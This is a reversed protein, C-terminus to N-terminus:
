YCHCSKFESFYSYVAISCTFILMLSSCREQATVLIYILISNHFFLVANKSLEIWHVDTQQDCCGRTKPLADAPRRDTRRAGECHRAEISKSTYHKADSASVRSVGGTCEIHFACVVFVILSSTKTRQRIAFYLVYAPLSLAAWVPLLSCKDNDDWSLSNVRSSVNGLFNHLWLSLLTCNLLEFKLLICYFTKAFM